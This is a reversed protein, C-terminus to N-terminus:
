DIVPHQQFQPTFKLTRTQTAIDKYVKEAYTQMKADVDLLGGSIFLM